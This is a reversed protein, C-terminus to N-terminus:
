KTLKECLKKYNELYNHRQIDYIWHLTIQSDIKDFNYVVKDIDHYGIQFKSIIFELSGRNLSEQKYSIYEKDCTHVYKVKSAKLVNIMDQNVCNFPPMFHEEDYCSLKDKLTDNCDNYIENLQSETYFGFEGGNPWCDVVNEWAEVKSFAHDFGHMAVRGSKIKNLIRFHNEELLLPSAGLIYDIEYAELVEIIKVLQNECGSRDAAYMNKDGHPYDDIRIM